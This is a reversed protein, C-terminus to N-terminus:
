PQVKGLETLPRTIQDSTRLDRVTFSEATREREGVIVALPINRRAAYNNAATISKTPPPYLEVILRARLTNAIKAAYATDSEDIPIVLVDPADIAKRFGSSHAAQLLQEMNFMFGVAPTDQAGGIVRIFDDYRGGGGLHDDQGSYFEFVIGTYYNVGRALGLHISLQSPSVDYSALLDVAGRFQEFIAHVAPDDGLLKEIKPFADAPQHRILTLEELFDLAAQVEGRQEARQQKTLLRRAVDENSRGTGTSGLNASELLLELADALESSYAENTLKRMGAIGAAGTETLAIMSEYQAEVYARGRRRLNEIQGLILRRTRRDLRFRELLAAVLGIHGIDIRWGKVGAADLGAAAM